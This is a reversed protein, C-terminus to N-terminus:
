HSVHDLNNYHHTSVYIRGGIFISNTLIQLKHPSLGEKTSAFETEKIGNFLSIM